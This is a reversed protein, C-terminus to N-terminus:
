FALTFRLLILREPSITPNRPDTDQFKFDEDFLNKAELTIFGYRKPLRYGLSADFLWFQDDDNITQMNDLDIFDGDQDAYTLRLKAFIGSPHFFGGGFKLKHTKLDEFQEIGDYDDRDFDEYSYEVSTALWRHPTWYLYIRGIYEEWDAESFETTNETVLIIEYPVDMKRKYLEAGGFLHNSFKQDIAGGYIWTDTGPVDYFFQNFGAVQTPEITQDSILTKTLVRFAALRLTTNNFPNWILGFKPNVQDDDIRKDDYSDYGLGATLTLHEVPNVQTYLYLNTHYIDRKDRSYMEPIYPVSPIFQFDRDLDANYYGIGTIINFCSKQYLHQLEALYGDTDEEIGLNAVEVEDDISEDIDQSIVSAIVKSGPTFAHHFGLRYTRKTLNQRQNEQFRDPDFLLELDGFERDRYRIEGLISTDPSLSFQVFANYIDQDQDNNSRYGESEYHFQGISYSMKGWVGSQVLEDGVISNGGTVGSGQLALRDRNFLPNFENFSPDSPGAGDLIFMNSEALHPQVPTINIPQLLQSQLLESVRAIEHRPLAAYSDALFRHASYNSPDANLSKWGEALALQQFGLDNYIRGLGASRAALDKDLMLRSRYVVRNDNLDIARQLDELAEVPRNISQKRIADYFWATPDKPDLEKALTYQRQALSNRKEEYYAKGLYSRILSSDPDLSAAIEIDGRGAKLNGDRIEALGLGLRPMPDAQDLEIAKKFAEKAQDIEVRHLHSFGLVTQTRAINPNLEVAKKAAEVSRDLDGFSLWLESLRSWALANEPNLEAAKQLSSLASSLDFGAQQAYSLAVKACPSEPALKVAKRALDLALDNKNQVVAIISQLAFAKSNSPDLRLAKKIDLSADKISGVALLLSARYTFFAPDKLDAPLGELSSFANYLDGSWYFEISRRVTKQWAVESDFDSPHYYIVPPYYLAWQIADRPHVVIRLIPAKGAQAVASKGKTLILKGADNQASVQGEFISLLTHDSKVGIYFETGEVFANVFPTFVKLARPSRSFFNVSGRVMDIVSITEKEPAPVIVSTMQDLRLIAENRLIIAARSREHTHIM